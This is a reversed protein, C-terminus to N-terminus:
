AANFTGAGRKKQAWGTPVGGAPASGKLAIPRLRFRNKGNPITAMPVQDRMPRDHLNKSELWAGLRPDDIVPQDRWFESGLLCQIQLHDLQLEITAADRPFYRRVNSAGVELGAIECGRNQMGVVM